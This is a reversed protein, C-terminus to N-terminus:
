EFELKSIKTLEFSPFFNFEVRLRCSTVSHYLLKYCVRAQRQNTTILAKEVSTENIFTYSTPIEFLYAREHEPRSNVAGLQNFGVSM